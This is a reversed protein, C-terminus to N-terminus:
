RSMRTLYQSPLLLLRRHHLDHIGFILHIFNCWYLIPLFVFAAQRKLIGYCNYAPEM